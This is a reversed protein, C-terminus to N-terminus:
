TDIDVFEMVKLYSFAAMDNSGRNNIYLTYVTGQWRSQARIDYTRASTSGSTESWLLPIAWMRDTITTGTGHYTTCNADSTASSNNTYGSTSVTPLGNKYISWNCVYTNTTNLIAKVIIKSTSSIPTFNISLGTVIIPSASSITQRLPGASVIESQVIM